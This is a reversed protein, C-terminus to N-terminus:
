QNRVAEETIEIMQKILALERQYERLIVERYKDCFLIDEYTYDAM